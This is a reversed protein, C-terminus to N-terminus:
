TLCSGRFGQLSDRLSCAMAHGLLFVGTLGLPETPNINSIKRQAVSKLPVRLEPRVPRFECASTKLRSTGGVAHQLPRPRILLDPKVPPLYNSINSLNACFRWHGGNSAFNAPAVLELVVQLLM